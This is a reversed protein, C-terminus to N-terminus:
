GSGRKWRGVGPQWVSNVCPQGNGLGRGEWSQMNQVYPDRPVYAVRWQDFKGRDEFELEPTLDEADIM